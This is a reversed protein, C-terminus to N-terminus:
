LIRVSPKPRQGDPYPKLQLDFYDEVLAPASALGLPASRLSHRIYLGDILAA